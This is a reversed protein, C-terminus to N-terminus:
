GAAALAPASDRVPQEYAQSPKAPATEGPSALRWGEAALWADLQQYRTAELDPARVAGPDAEPINNEAPAGREPETPVRPVDQGQAPALGPAEEVASGPSEFLFPEPLEYRAPPVLPLAM